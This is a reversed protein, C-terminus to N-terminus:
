NWGGQLLRPRWGGSWAAWLWMWGPRSHMWPHPMWLRRPCGTGTRWWGRLSFSGGKKREDDFLFGLLAKSSRSMFLLELNRVLLLWSSFMLRQQTSVHLQLLTTHFLTCPLHAHPHVVPMPTCLNRCHVETSVIPNIDKLIGFGLAAILLFVVVIQAVTNTYVM